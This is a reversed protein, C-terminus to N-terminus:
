HDIDNPVHCAKAHNFDIELDKFDLSLGLLFSIRDTQLIMYGMHSFACAFKGGMGQFFGFIPNATTDSRHCAFYALANLRGLVGNTATSLLGFICGLICSILGLIYGFFSRVLSFFCYCVTNFSNFFPSIVSLFHSFFSHFFYCMHSFFRCFIQSLCAM